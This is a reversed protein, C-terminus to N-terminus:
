VQLAVPVQTSPVTQAFTQLPPEHEPVHLGPAVWHLPCVGCVHSLVPVQCFPVVHEFWAHWFPEHVPTQVGPALCHAPFPTCVHPELPCHLVADAQVFEAHTLPAHVPTQTGPAVCHWFL